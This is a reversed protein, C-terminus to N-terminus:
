LVFHERPRVIQHLLAPPVEMVYAKKCPDVLTNNVALIRASKIQGSFLTRRKAQPLGVMEYLRLPRMNGYSSRDKTRSGFASPRHTNFIAEAYYCINEVCGHIRNLYFGVSPPFREISPSKSLQSDTASVQTPGRSSKVM